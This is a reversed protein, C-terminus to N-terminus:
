LWGLQEERDRYVIGLARGHTLFAYIGVVAMILSQVIPMEILSDSIIVQFVFVLVMIIIALLYHLGGRFIAPVVIHPSMATVTGLIVVGLLAMPFYLIGFGILGYFIGPSALEFEDDEISGGGAFPDGFIIYGLLPSFSVLIVLGVKLFPVLIDGVVSTIDPFGPVEESGGATTEIIDFYMACFFGTFLFTAIVGIIPAFAAIDAMISLIAGIILIYKGHGRFGYTLIDLVVNM